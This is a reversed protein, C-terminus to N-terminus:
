NLLIQLASLMTGGAHASVYHIKNYVKLCLPELSFKLPTLASPQLPFMKLRAFLITLPM